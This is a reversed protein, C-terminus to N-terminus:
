FTQQKESQRESSSVDESRRGGSLSCLHLVSLCALLILFLFTLKLLLIVDLSYFCGFVLFHLNQFIFYSSLIARRTDLM